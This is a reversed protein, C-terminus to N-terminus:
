RVALHNKSLAFAVDDPEDFPRVITSQLIQDRNAVPSHKLGRKRVKSAGRQYLACSRLPVGDLPM